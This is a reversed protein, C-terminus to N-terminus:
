KRRTLQDWLTAGGGGIVAGLLAGKKGGVAAGVGAGVGASSGIIIASKKVSRGQKVTRVTRPEDYVVQRAQVPRASAVPYTGPQVIRADGLDGTGASQVFRPASRYAVPALPAQALAEGTSVCEVQSIAAGNVIAPRVLARQNPECSVVVPPGQPAAAADQAREGALNTGCGYTFLLAGIGAVGAARGWLSEMARM